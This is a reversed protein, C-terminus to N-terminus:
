PMGQGADWRVPPLYMERGKEVERYESLTISVATPNILDAFVDWDRPRCVIALQGNQRLEELWDMQKESLRGKETKVEVFFCRGHGIITLDPYGANSGKSIDTHYSRFGLQRAAGVLQRQWVAEQTIALAGVGIEM